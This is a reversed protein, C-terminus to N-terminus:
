ISRRTLLSYKEIYTTVITRSQVMEGPVYGWGASDHSIVEYPPKPEILWAHWEAEFSEKGWDGVEIPIEFSVDYNAPLTIAGLYVQWWYNYNYVPIHLYWAFLTDVSSSAPNKFRLTTTMADGPSYSTKDTTVSVTPETPEEGINVSWVHVLSKANEDAFPEFIYLLRRARDFSVARVHEKQQTSEVNYLYPDINLSAYPQPEWTEIEGRAVAALDAPDYFIIQGEFGTSWWGRDCDPPWPPEDTGDACGYWCDGIGKTGVFIVASKNGATLWAGGSWEDSHHYDNMTHGGPTYSSDYHLLTTANLRTGPAPPNGDNWPGIAYLSPGQGSWGGDRFRGTALLQGPTNAAAWDEPIGFMYDNVSYISTSPDGVWWPGATQPNSLDLECWMHSPILEPSGEEQFHQGWAFYLKDSTQNGQAPLYEMGVRIIEVLPDFLGARVDHFEQLTTATNLDDLNKTPSIVPVPISIESVYMQWDHGVAFISGPYGDMPGYSDGDPYYTMAAGSYEWSSEGSEGPLRFAGKYELDSPQILQTSVVTGFFPLDGHMESKKFDRNKSLLYIIENALEEPMIKGKAMKGPVYRWDATDESIVELTTTNYLAVYWSANFPIRYDGLTFPITFTQEYDSPLYIAKKMIWYQLDYDPLDLRWAFYVPQWEETPNSLTISILMTEGATYEFKDTSITVNLSTPPVYGDWRHYFVNLMSVFEETAKQNGAATPHSDWLDCGYASFNNNVTQIHQVTGDWWRHHNGTEWGADSTHVDGGNSTLVNYFDFVAVNNYRYGDLWDNVLWNNFARANAAHRTDTESEVQPPATIVIFLKDQRTAFYALLDNYIGKANAVTHHESWCDQGRLPNYGTTPPDDPTGGLYSNPFCSKFMIIENEGGPDTSLRSYTSHQDYETYLASLYTASRPGRFWTWWHGIDTYDGISDPGWGYNTDSVFYNNDRLAIGLRGDWDALWNEGCSHHIFILKVPSIPPNPNDATFQVPMPVVNSSLLCSDSLDLLNDARFIPVGSTVPENSASACGVVALLAFVFVIAIIITKEAKM